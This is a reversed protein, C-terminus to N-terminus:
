PEFGEPLTYTMGLRTAARLTIPEFFEGLRKTDYPSLLSKFRCNMSWRAEDEENRRNGHMLTHTFILGQGVSVTLWEVDPEIAQFLEETGKGRLGALHKSHEDNLKRPLIFMSKTRYCDVLPVWVVVEFASDGSWVDSHVPLLSSEDGRLQISLNIRRQMALENGVLTALVGRALRYYAPRFWPERNMANFIALRVSNLDAVSVLEGARNLLESIDEFPTGIEKSLQNAVARRIRELGSRDEIEFIHYGREEFDEILRLEESDLFDADYRETARLAPDSSTSSSM